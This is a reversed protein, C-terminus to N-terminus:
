SPWTHGHRKLFKKLEPLIIKGFYHIDLVEDESMTQLQSIWIVGAYRELVTIAKLANPHTSDDVLDSLRVQTARTTDPSAHNVTSSTFSVSVSSQDIAQSVFHQLETLASREGEASIEINLKAM